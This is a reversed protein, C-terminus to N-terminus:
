APIPMTLAIRMSAASPWRQEPPKALARAIVGALEPPIEPRLSRLDSPPQVQHMRLVLEEFPDEFPPRGALAEYLVCGLSYLDSRADLDQTGGVQEPSMYLSTGVAFGSRTLRDSGAESVAKAIGFDLLVAGDPALIINEPKVDRHVIGHDHAYALADLTDCGIHIADPISVLRHRNLYDKLSPGEVLQMVYYLIWEEEGYDLLRAIRPHDLSAVFRIERLFRDAAVSASLQPRLVKLAVPQGAGDRARFVVAAGGHGIERDVEYRGEFAKRVM